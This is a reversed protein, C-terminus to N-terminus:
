KKCKKVPIYTKTTTTTNQPNGGFFLNPRLAHRHGVQLGAPEDPGHGEVTEHLRGRGRARGVVAAVVVVVSAHEPPRPVPEEVHHSLLTGDHPLYGLRDHPVLLLLPLVRRPQLARHVRDRGSAVHTLYIPHHYQIIRYFRLSRLKNYRGTDIKSYTDYAHYRVGARSNKTENRKMENRKM